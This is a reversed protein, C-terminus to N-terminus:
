MLDASPLRDTFGIERELAHTNYFVCQQECDAMYMDMRIRALLVCVWVHVFVSASLDMVYHWLNTKSVTKERCYQLHNAGDVASNSFCIIFEGNQMLACVCVRACACVSACVCM